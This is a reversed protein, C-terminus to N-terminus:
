FTSSCVKVHMYDVYIDVSLILTEYNHKHASMGRVFEHLTISNAEFREKLEKIKRDRNIARQTCRPPRAGAALQTLSVETKTQEKLIVEVFEYINPHLKGVVRKLRSQWGELHQQDQEIQERFCEVPALPLKGPITM